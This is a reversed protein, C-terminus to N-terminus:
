VAAQRNRVHTAFDAARGADATEERILSDTPFSDLFLETASSAMTVFEVVELAAVLEARARAPLLPREPNTIIVVVPGTGAAIEALRKVHAALLPDFHGTVITSTEQILDRAQPWDLIKTRTDVAKTQNLLM